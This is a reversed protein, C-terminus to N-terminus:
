LEIASSEIENQNGWFYILFKLDTDKVRAYIIKQLELAQILATSKFPM